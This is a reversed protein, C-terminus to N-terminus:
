KEKTQQRQLTFGTEWLEKGIEDWAAEARKDGTARIHNFTESAIAPFGMILTAVSTPEGKALNQLNERIDSDFHESSQVAAALEAFANRAGESFQVKIAHPDLETIKRTYRGAM